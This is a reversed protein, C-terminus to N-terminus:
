EHKSNRSRVSRVLAFIAVGLVFGCLLTAFPHAALHSFDWTFDHDGDHGPHALLAAPATLTAFALPRPFRLLTKM